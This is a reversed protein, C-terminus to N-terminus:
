CRGRVEGTVRHGGLDLFPRHGGGFDECELLQREQWQGQQEVGAEESRM